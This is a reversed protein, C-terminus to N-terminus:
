MLKNAKTSILSKLTNKMSLFVPNPYHPFFTRSERLFFLPFAPDPGGELGQKYIDYKIIRFSNNGHKFTIRYSM